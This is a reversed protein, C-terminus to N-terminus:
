APNGAAAWAQGYAYHAEARNPEALCADRAAELAAQPDGRRLADSFARLKESGDPRIADADATLRDPTETVSAGPVAVAPRVGM